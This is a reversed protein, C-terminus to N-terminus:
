KRTLGSDTRLQKLNRQIDQRSLYKNFVAEGWRQQLGSLLNESRSSQDQESATKNLLRCARSAISAARWGPEMQDSQEFSRQAELSNLLAGQADGTELMAEALALQARSLMLHNDTREAMEFAEECLRKGEAKAGSFIMALGLVCKADVSAYRAQTNALNLSQRSKSVAEPLNGQSLAIQSAILYDRALLIDKYKSDLREAIAPLQDLALGAEEYRGLRWLMDSRYLLNYGANLQNGLTEYIDFSKDFHNLADAYFDQESLTIGILMHTKALQSPDNVQEAYLLQKNFEQIAAEYDGKRLKARGLWIMAEALENSYSGQQFFNISHELYRSADDLKQGTQIYLKGLSLMAKAENRRGKNRQSFDLAQKFYNEAENYERRVYFATGLDILGEVVLNELGDIRASEVAQAALEKARATQGETYSISSLQLLTRTHQYKNGTAQTKDLVKQFQTQAETIKGLKNLLYGRQYITETLGEFNSAAEYLNEAQIFAGAASDLNQKRGHLVGVRLFAAAYQRDFKIAETYSEIAKDTEENKEYARGLDLYAFQKETDAAKEMIRNYTEVAEAFNRTLTLNVARMYLEDTSSLPARNSVLTTARLQESQARDTYDLEMLAEALRAHALAFKEDLNIAQELAKSAQYYTGDRLANVGADYWRKAQPSPQYPASTWFRPVLWFFIVGILLVALAIPLAIGPRKLKNTLTALARVRLTTPKVTVQRTPLSDEAQLQDRVQQLEALMEAATQYRADARKAVARMIIQDLEPPVRADLRSPLVPDVYLVQACIEMANSGTFAQKGAVCEYLMAGLSFLDSRGDLRGRKIQEPSMYAPTGVVANAETILSETVVGTQELMDQQVQKALGFDLVKVVGRPTIIINQPKIDRHIIRKAHAEGLADAVQMAIDLSEKLTLGKARLRESLTEGEVYQMIIFSTDSEEGVEYIACINPHDLVAAAKAERVLRKKAQEDALSKQPLLKIAVKRGLRTDEALYVEGMGGSGIKKIIRYHSIAQSIM